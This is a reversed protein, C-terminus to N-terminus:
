DINEQGKEMEKDDLTISSLYTSIPGLADGNDGGGLSTNPDSDDADFSNHDENPDEDECVRIRRIRPVPPAPDSDNSHAREDPPVADNEKMERYRPKIYSTKYRNSFALFFQFWHWLYLLNASVAPVTVVIRWPYKIYLLHDAETAIISTFCRKLVYLM